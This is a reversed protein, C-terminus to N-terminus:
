QEFRPGFRKSCVADCDKWTMGGKTGHHNADVDAPDWGLGFCEDIAEKAYGAILSGLGSFHAGMCSIYCHSYLPNQIGRPHHTFLYFLVFEYAAAIPAWILDGGTAIWYWRATEKVASRNPLHVGERLQQANWQSMVPALGDSDTLNVPDNLVYGYLNTDGGAFLIPDKATWRGVQPDYDRAGFRV